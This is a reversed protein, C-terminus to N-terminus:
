WFRIGGDSMPSEALSCRAEGGVEVAELYRGYTATTSPYKSGLIHAVRSARIIAAASGIHDAHPHSAVFM